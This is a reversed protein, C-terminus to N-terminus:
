DDSQLNFDLPVNFLVAPGEFPTFRIREVSVAVCNQFTDDNLAGIVQVSRALGAQTLTFSLTVPGTEQQHRQVWEAYCRQLAHKHKILANLVATTSSSSESAPNVAAQLQVPRLVSAGPDRWYGDEMLGLAGPRGTQLIQVSGSIVHIVWPYPSTRQELLIQTNDSLSFAWGEPGNLHAESRAGALVQDGHQLGEAPKASRWLRSGPSSVRVDGRITAMNGFLKTSTDSNSPSLLHWLVYGGCLAIVGLSAAFAGRMGVKKLHAVGRIIM